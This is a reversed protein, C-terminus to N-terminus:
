IETQYKKIKSNLIDTLDTNELSIFCYNFRNLIISCKEILEYIQNFTINENVILKCHMTSEKFELLSYFDINQKLETQLHLLEKDVINTIQIYIM